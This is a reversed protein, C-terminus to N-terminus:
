WSEDGGAPPWLKQMQRLLAIQGLHYANHLGIGRLLAYGSTMEPDSAGSSAGSMPYPRDLDIDQLAWDQAAQLDGLFRLMLDPWESADSEPWGDAEHAPYPPDLGQLKDLVRKQWFFLHAVIRAISYPSDPPTASAQEATLDGLLREPTLFEGDGDLLRSLSEAPPGLLRNNM